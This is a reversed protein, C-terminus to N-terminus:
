KSFYHLGGDGGPGATGNDGGHPVEKEKTQRPPTMQEALYEAPWLRVEPWRLALRLAVERGQSSLGADAIIIPCDLLGMGRLWVLTRVAQEVQGGEGWAPVVAWLGEGPIPRLLRGFLWWGLFALGLVCLVSLAVDRLLGM